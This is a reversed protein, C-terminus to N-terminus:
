FIWLISFFFIACRTGLAQKLCNQLPNDGTLPVDYKFKASIICSFNYFKKYNNIITIFTSVTNSIHYLMVLCSSYHFKSLLFEQPYLCDYSM